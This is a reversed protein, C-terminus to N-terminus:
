PQELDPHTDFVAFLAAVAAALMDRRTLRLRPLKM